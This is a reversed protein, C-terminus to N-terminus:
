TGQGLLSWALLTRRSRVSREPLRAIRANPRQWRAFPDLLLTAIPWHAVTTDPRTSDSRSEQPPSGGARDGPDLGLLRRRLVITNFAQENASLFPEHDRRSPTNDLLEISKGLVQFGQISGLQRVDLGTLATAPLGTPGEPLDVSQWENKSSGSTDAIGLSPSSQCRTNLPHHDGYAPPRAAPTPRAV